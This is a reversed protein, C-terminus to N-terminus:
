NEKKDISQSLILHIGVKFSEKNKTRPSYAPNTQFAFGAKEKKRVGETTGRTASANERILLPSFSGLLQPSVASWRAKWTCLRAVSQMGVGEFLDAEQLRQVRCIVESSGDACEIHM